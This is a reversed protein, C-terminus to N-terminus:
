LDAYKWRGVVSISCCIQYQRFGINKENKIRNGDSFNEASGDDIAVLNKWIIEFMSDIQERTVNEGSDLPYRGTVSYIDSNFHGRGVIKSKSM